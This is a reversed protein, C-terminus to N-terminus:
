PQYPLRGAQYLGNGLTLPDIGARDLADLLPTAGREAAGALKGSALAAEGMLRPSQLALTTVAGPLGGFQYGGMGLGAAVAGGLGRPTTSSLAQGALAPMIAQGGQQELEQALNLRNGYNTNVNNRMLSQLKRMSTDASARPGLSLTRQIENIQDAADSYQKMVDAYVPAQQVITDKAANYLNGAVLRATKQEYPISEMIGGIQQKLADFGEPTHYVAPDLNKWGDIADRIVQYASAASTNTVQGNFNGIKANKNLANDLENFGLISKDNSVQAMGQRYAQSKAQGMAALNAKATDLVDTMPVNGRMNDALAQAAQGGQRGSQFATKLSEAGTHTGINGILSAAANGAAPVAKAAIGVPNVMDAVAGIRAGAGALGPLKGALSAGGSLVASLDAAAGIPDNALTTRLGASSGYRDKFFQGAADAKASMRQQNTAANSSPDLSDIASSVSAPLVNRLAGAGTDILNGATDLPHMVAQGIGSLFNGASPLLNQIAKGPVASWSPGFLDTSMDRGNSPQQKQQQTSGFLEASMDRGPAGM